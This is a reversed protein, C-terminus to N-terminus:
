RFKNFFKVIRSEEIKRDEVLNSILQGIHINKFNFEKM